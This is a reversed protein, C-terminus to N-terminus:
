YFRRAARYFLQRPYGNMQNYNGLEAGITGFIGETTPKATIVNVSGAASNRGFLTGQPGRMVELRELDFMLAVAGQPRPSYVGDVHFAVSPDGIETFNNSNIGRMTMQVGSDSPSFSVDFNPVLDAADRIDKVGNRTLDAQTFASVAISTTMLNTEIRTATVTIEEIILDDDQAFATSAGVLLGLVAASSLLLKHAKM